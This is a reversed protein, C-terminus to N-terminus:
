RVPQYGSPEMSFTARGHSLTRLTTAYQFMRALAVSAKVSKQGCRDAVDLVDARRASLDGLVSGLAEEPSDVELSMVPELVYPQAAKAALKFADIAALEFALTSSEQDHYQGDLLSVRVQVLPGRGLVGTKAAIRVGKEISPIFEKPVAGGVVENVFVVGDPESNEFPEVALTCVGFAGLGGNRRVHRGQAEARHSLTERYAIRPQGSRLNAGELRIRELVTELHLEGMGSVVLEGTEADVQVRFTPDERRARALANALKDRDANAIPEVAISLVPEPFVPAELHLPHEESCLTDGTVTEHLGSLAVIDGACASDLPLLKDAQVRYIRDMREGGRTRSNWVRGSKKLTGAYVRVLTWAGFEDHVTKFALAALPADPDAKCEAKAELPSPLYDVVADLLPQIGINKGAAGCFVPVARNAHTVRRLADRLQDATPEREALYLVEIESDLNALQEVLALRHFKAVDAWERSLESECPTGDAAFRCERLTLLDVHGQLTQSSGIPWQLLLPTASLRSRMQAVVAAVSAGERDLKNVFCIRPVGYRDAQRWVTESQAQVGEVGSFVVVAGDVVRLSRQVEVTFDIHGPTDILNIRYDRWACSVAAAKITIGRKREQVDYDTTTNGHDVDGLKHQAGAFFLVRETCTTKGADIHAIIGINRLRPIFQLQNQRTDLRTMKRQRCLAVEVTRAPTFRGRSRAYM